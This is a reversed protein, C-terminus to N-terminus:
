SLSEELEKRSCDRELNDTSFSRLLDQITPLMSKMQEKLQERVYKKFDEDQLKALERVESQLPDRAEDLSQTALEAQQEIGADLQESFDELKDYVSLGKIKEIQQKMLYSEALSEITQPGLPNIFVGKFNSQFKEDMEKVGNWGDEMKSFIADCFESADKQMGSSKLSNAWSSLSERAQERWTNMVEIGNKSRYAAVDSRAQNFASLVGDKAVIWLSRYTEVQDKYGRSQEVLRNAFLNFKPTFYGVLEAGIQQIEQRFFVGLINSTGEKIPDSGTMEKIKENEDTIEVLKGLVKEKLIDKLSYFDTLVQNAIEEVNKLAQMEDTNFKHSKDLLFTWRDAYDGIMKNLTGQQTIIDNYLRPTDVMSLKEFFADEAQLEAYWHPYFNQMSIPLQDDKIGDNFLAGADERAKKLRSDWKNQVDLNGPSTKEIIDVLDNLVSKRLDGYADITENLKKIFSNDPSINLSNLQDHLEKIRSAYDSM